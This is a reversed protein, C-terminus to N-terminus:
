DIWLKIGTWCDLNPRSATDTMCATTEIVSQAVGGEFSVLSSKLERLYLLLVGLVDELTDTQDNFRFSDPTLNSPPLSSLSPISDTKIREALQRITNEKGDKLLIDM